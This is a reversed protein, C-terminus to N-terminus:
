AMCLTRELADCLEESCTKGSQCRDCGISDLAAGGCTQFYFNGDFMVWFLELVIEPM